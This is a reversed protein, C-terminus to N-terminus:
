ITKAGLLKRGKLMIPIHDSVSKKLGILKFYGFKECWEPEVFVKDLRSM